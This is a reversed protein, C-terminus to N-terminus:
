PGFSLVQTSHTRTPCRLHERHPGAALRCVQGPVAGPEEIRLRIWYPLTPVPGPQRGGPLHFSRPLTRISCWPSLGAWPWSLLTPLATRSPDHLCQEQPLYVQGWPYMVVLPSVGPLSQRWYKVGELGPGLGLEVELLIPCGSRLWTGCMTNIPMQASLRSVASRPCHTAVWSTLHLRGLGEPGWGSPM